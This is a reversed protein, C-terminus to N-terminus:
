IMKIENYKKYLTRLKQEAIDLKANLKEANSCDPLNLIKDELRRITRKVNSIEYIIEELM